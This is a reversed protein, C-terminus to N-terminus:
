PLAAKLQADAAEIATNQSTLATVAADLQTLQDTTLGGAAIKALIAVVDTNVSAVDTVLTNMAATLADLSAQTAMIKKELSLFHATLYDKFAPTPDSQVKISFDLSM